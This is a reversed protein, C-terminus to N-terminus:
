ATSGSPKRLVTVLGFLEQDSEMRLVARNMSVQDLGLQIAQDGVYQASHAYRRSPQLAYTGSDLAEVTFAFLGGPRLAAAAAAFADTLEGLYVFVDAALILEYRSPNARLATVLDGVELHDYIGRQRAQSVMASSLDVGSLSEAIPRFLQGCLGTGCGLDMVNPRMAPAAATVADFILQPARYQLKEGLHQDFVPAYRDFLNVITAAPPQPPASQGGLAALAFKIDINQPYLGALDRLQDIAEQKHGMRALADALEARAELYNPQLEIAKRFCAVAQEDNRQQRFVAGLNFHAQPYDPWLRLSIRIQEIAEEFSGKMGLVAGLGNHALPSNPKLEIAKRFAAISEDVRRQNGLAEALTLYTAAGSAGLEMTRRCSEEAERYRGTKLLAVSLHHHVEARDVGLAMALRFADAAAAHQGLRELAIGLAVHSEPRSGPLQLARRFADVAQSPKGVALCMEGYSHQYAAVWPALQAARGILKLAMDNRGAQRALTGLGHLADPQDPNRDLVQRYLVEAEQLRGAQHHERAANLADHITPEAMRYGSQIIDFRASCRPDSHAIPCRVPPM